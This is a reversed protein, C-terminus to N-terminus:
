AAAQHQDKILDWAANIQKIRKERQVRDAEDRALDPHWSMRLADVLKKAVAPAAAPNVGLVRY